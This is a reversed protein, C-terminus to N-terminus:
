PLGTQSQQLSRNSGAPSAPDTEPSEAWYGVGAQLGVPLKGWRVLKNVAANIPVSLKEMQWNYTSESQV